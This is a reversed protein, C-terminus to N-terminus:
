PKGEFYQLADNLRVVAAELEERGRRMLETVSLLESTCHGLEKIHAVACEYHRPGADWCGDWHTM